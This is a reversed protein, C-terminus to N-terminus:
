PKREPEPKVINGYVSINIEPRLQHDTKLKITDFYRGKEKKTNEVTLVYGTGTADKVEDLSYLIHDGKSATTEIIKLPYKEEPTINVSAKIEKGVPGTLRLYRPKITIFREVHGVVSLTTQPKRADSTRVLINKDM